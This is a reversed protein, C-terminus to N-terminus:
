RGDQKHHRARLMQAHLTRPHFISGDGHESPPEPKGFLIPKQASKPGPTSTPKTDSADDDADDDAGQTPFATPRNHSMLVKIKVDAISTVRDPALEDTTLRLHGEMMLTTSCHLERHPFVGCEKRLCHCVTEPKPTFPDMSAVVIRLNEDITECFRAESQQEALCIQSCVPQRYKTMAQECCLVECNPVSPLPLARKTPAKSPGFATPKPTPVLTPPTKTPAAVPYATPAQSICARVGLWKCYHQSLWKPYDFNHQYISDELQTINVEGCCLDSNAVALEEEADSNHMEDCAVQTNPCETSLCHCVDSLVRAAHQNTGTSNRHDLASRNQWSYGTPILPVRGSKANQKRAAACANWAIGGQLKCMLGFVRTGYHNGLKLACRQHCSRPRRDKKAAKHLRFGLIPRAQTTNARKRRSVTRFTIQDQVCATCRYVLASKQADATNAVTTGHVASSSLNGHTIQCKTANAQHLASFCNNKAHVYRRGTRSFVTFYKEPLATALCFFQVDAFSCVPSTEAVANNDGVVLQVLSWLVLMLM